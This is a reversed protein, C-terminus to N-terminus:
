KWVVFSSQLYYWLTTYCLTRKEITREEKLSGLCPLHSSLWLPRASAVLPHTVISLRSHTIPFCICVESSYLINGCPRWPPWLPTGFFSVAAMNSDWYLGTATSNHNQYTFTTKNEFLNAFISAVHTNEVTEWVKSRKVSVAATNFENSKLLIIPHGPPMLVNRKYKRASKPVNKRLLKGLILNYHSFFM